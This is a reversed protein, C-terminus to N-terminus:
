FGCFNHQATISARQQPNRGCVAQSGFALGLPQQASNKAVMRAATIDCWGTSEQWRGAPGCKGSQVRPQAATRGNKGSLSAAKFGGLVVPHRGAVRQEPRQAQCDTSNLLKPIRRAGTQRSSVRAGPLTGAEWPEAGCMASVWGSSCVQSGAGCQVADQM